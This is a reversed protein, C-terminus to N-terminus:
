YVVIMRSVIQNFFVNNLSLLSVNKQSLLLLFLYSRSLYQGICIQAITEFLDDLLAVIVAGFPTLLDILKWRWPKRGVLL